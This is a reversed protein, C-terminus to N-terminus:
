EEKSIPSCQFEPRAEHLKSVLCDKWDDEQVGEVRTKDFTQRQGIKM